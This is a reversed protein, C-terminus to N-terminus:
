GICFEPCRVLPMLHVIVKHSRRDAIGSEVRWGGVAADIGGPARGCAHGITRSTSSGARRVKPRSLSKSATTATTSRWYMWSRPWASAIPTWAPAAASPSASPARRPHPLSLPLPPSPSLPFPRPRSLARHRRQRLARRRPSRRSARPPAKAPAPSAPLPGATSSIGPTGKDVQRSTEQSGQKGTEKEGARGNGREGEGRDMWTPEDVAFPNDDGSYADEDDDGAMAPPPPYSRAPAAYSQATPREKVQPRSPMGAAGNRFRYAVSSTDEIVKM